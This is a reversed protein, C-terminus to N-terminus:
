SWTKYPSKTLSSNYYRSDGTVEEGIWDPIDITQEESELEVEAMILGDNEGSFEDVEWVVSGQPIKYRKKRILPQRCLTDLLEQADEVPIEYEYEPRTIGTPKGKITIFGKDEVTRIRVVNGKDTTLYGQCYSVGVALSRWADSLVPFKREIEQPM